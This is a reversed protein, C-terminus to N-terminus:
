FFVACVGTETLPLSFLLWGGSQQPYHLFLHSLVNTVSMVKVLYNLIKKSQIQRIVLLNIEEFGGVDPQMYLTIYLQM